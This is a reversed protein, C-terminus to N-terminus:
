ESMTLKEKLKHRLIKGVSFKPLEDIFEITKDLEIVIINNVQTNDIIDALVNTLSVFIMLMNVPTDNLQHTIEKATYLPNVKVQVGGVKIIGWMAVPFSHVHPFMLAVNDGKLINLKSQLYAAFHNPFRDIVNFSM